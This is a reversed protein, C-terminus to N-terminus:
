SHPAATKEWRDVGTDGTASLSVRHQVEGVGAPTLWSAQHEVAQLRHVPSDVFFHAVRLCLSADGLVFHGETHLRRDGFQNFKLRIV